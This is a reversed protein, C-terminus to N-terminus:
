SDRGHMHVYSAIAEVTADQASSDSGGRPSMWGLDVGFRGEVEEIFAVFDSGNIDLDAYIRSDREAARGSFHTALDLLEDLPESKEQDMMEMRCSPCIEPSPTASSTRGSRM